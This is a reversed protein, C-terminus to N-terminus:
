TSRTEVFARLQDEGRPMEMGFVRGIKDKSIVPNRPRKAPLPYATTGIPKVSAWGVSIGSDDKM